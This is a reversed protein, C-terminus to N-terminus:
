ARMIAHAAIKARVEGVAQEKVRGYGRIDMYLGILEAADGLNDPNLRTLVDGVLDEFEEILAREMRREATWGFPDFPTGRLGRMRALLRMPITLWAGFEKKLPRGRADKRRSLLPPAMHFRVRAKEGYAARVSDLFGTQTQLRAVEYEDKYSLLKFYSRAVAGTLNDDNGAERVRQVLARYRDALPQGQYDVLFDARRRIIDNLSEAVPKDNDVLEWVRQPSAIALRGWGFAQKNKEVEVGNLEIARILAAHGIPVLGQQWAAGLLLVNAFITNGLLKEALGNADLTEVNSEGVVNAIAQVRDGIRLSADRYQVFDATPMEATNLLARTHGRRFRSSARPSSSVVIDCGILADASAQEIRVQNINQPEDALRIFSVVTGFKQAFGM